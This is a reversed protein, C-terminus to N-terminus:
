KDWTVRYILGSSDDSVYMAGEPGVVIGVPRGMWVGKRTEGPQIWGTIFDKPPGQPEGKSSLHVRIVKYGTPVSRNWSGHLAVFIDGHYAAPFMSGNYFAIGLPASHAQIEVKPPITQECRNDGPKVQSTDTVRNGYCYPWGFNGGNPGLDNIEDPPLNDGLWDRGNETAWLTGTHPNLALGVSNRLGYAFIREGSGDENFEMVAARRKDKEVCVNCSSGVSVYMKGNAFLVTRTSHGGGSRPLSVIVQGNSAHLGSEDWDFRRVQNTEAVYLKGNHFTISNPENLDELVTVAREPRGTHQPDPFALVTGDSMNTALLVGGPSFAMMRAHPAEAFVAIHFGPPLKLRELDLQEARTCSLLFIPILVSFWARMPFGLLLTNADM